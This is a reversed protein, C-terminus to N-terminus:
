KKEPLTKKKRIENAKRIQEKKKAHEANTTSFDHAGSGDWRAVFYLFGTQAPHLAAKISAFGPSCIPGPPLGTRLRTNYPSDINLESVHLDGSFKRLIYRVTPDAGLPIKKHLRNHFVGSIFPRESAVAAEKEIISALVVADRKSMPAAGPVSAAEGYKEEFHELMREVVRQPTVDPPFRYTDPFLYGECSSQLFGHNGLLAQDKCAAVFAASDFGFAPGVIGATQEVTLGEPVTVPIEVPEAHLLKQAASFIGEHEFLVVRGAQIKKEDGTIKLWLIFVASSPVIRDKKLERSIAHLTAGKEVIVEIPKGHPHLPLFLYAVVAGVALFLVALAFFPKKYTQMFRITWLIGYFTYGALALCYLAGTFWTRFFAKVFSNKMFISGFSRFTARM